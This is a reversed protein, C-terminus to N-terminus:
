MFAHGFALFRADLLRTPADLVPLWHSGGLQRGPKSLLSALQVLLIERREDELRVIDHFPCVNLAELPQQSSQTRFHLYAM